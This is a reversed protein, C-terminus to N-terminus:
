RRAKSLRRRLNQGTSVDLLRLFGGLELLSMAKGDRIGIWSAAGCRKNRFAGESNCCAAGANPSVFKNSM